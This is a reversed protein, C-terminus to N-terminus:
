PAEAIVTKSGLLWNGVGYLYQVNQEGSKGTLPTLIAGLEEARETTMQQHRQTFKILARRDNQELDFVPLQGGVDPAGVSQLADNCHIVVTGAVLDGIRQSNKGCLMAVIGFLYGIPLMDAARLLNRLSSTRWNVPTLDDNFVMLGMKKKGPTQGKALVEFAVPYGWEIVFWAILLIGSGMQGLFAMALGLAVLVGLRIAADILFALARPVVGALEAHLQIGEPTEVQYSHDILIPNASVM